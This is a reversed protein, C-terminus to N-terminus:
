SQPLSRYEFETRSTLAEEGHAVLCTSFTWYCVESFDLVIRLFLHLSSINFLNFHNPALLYACMVSVATTCGTQGLVNLICVNLPPHSITYLVPNGNVSLKFQKRQLISDISNPPDSALFQPAGPSFVRFFSELVLLGTPHGQLTSRRTMCGQLGPHEIHVICIM